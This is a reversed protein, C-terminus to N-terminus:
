PTVIRLLVWSKTIIDYALFVDRYVRIVSHCYDFRMLKSTKLYYGNKVLVDGYEFVADKINRPSSTSPFLATFCDDEKEDVETITNDNNLIYTCDGDGDFVTKVGCDIGTFSAISWVKRGVDIETNERTDVNFSFLENNTTLYYLVRREHLLSVDTYPEVGDTGEIEKFTEIRPSKFVEEVTAERLPIRWTLLLIISDYFSTRTTNEVKMKVQRGNNLDTFQIVKCDAYIALIGKHSLSAFIDDGTLLGKDMKLSESMTVGEGVNILKKRMVSNVDFLVNADDCVCYEDVPCNICASERFFGRRGSIFLAVCREM